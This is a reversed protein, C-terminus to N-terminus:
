GQFVDNYWQGEFVEGRSNIYKGYGHRKSSQWYGDYSSGDAWKMYGKGSHAGNEWGGTYEHGHYYKYTGQGHMTGNKWEGTYIDGSSYTMTGQGERQGNVYNGEYVSGNSFKQKGFGHYADNQWYGDYRGGDAWTAIGYGSRNGDKWSGEYKYGESSTYVGHGEFAGMVFDGVYTNSNAWTFTGKGTMEGDVWDGTYVNGNEYHYTGKGHRIGDKYEGEYFAGSPWTMAGYGNYTDNEWNGQYVTGDAFTLTGQGVRIGYEWTGDFVNGNAWTYTGEGHLKGGDFMGNYKGGDSYILEGYGDPVGRELHGTYVGYSLQHSTVDGTVSQKKNESDLYSQTIYGTQKLFEYAEEDIEDDWGIIFATLPDTVTGSQMISNALYIDALAKVEAPYYFDYAGYVHYLEHNFSSYDSSFIVLYEAFNNSSAYNAYARGAKNLAFLIPNSDVGNRSDLEKQMAALNSYGVSKAVEDLWDNSYDGAAADGSIKSGLYNYTINLRKGYSAAMEEIQKEQLTLSSSLKNIASENWTSVDDSVMFVTINVEGILEACRGGNKYSLYVNNQVDNPINDLDEPAVTTEPAATTAPNAVTVPATTDPSQVTEPETIEESTPEQEESTVDALTKEAKTQTKEETWSNKELYSDAFFGCSSLSASFVLLCVLLAAMRLAFRKRNDM